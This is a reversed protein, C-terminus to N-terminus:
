KITLAVFAIYIVILIAGEIRDISKKKFTFAFLFTLIASLLLAILDTSKIGSMVLPHITASGGLILFINSVNSGIVNGLALDTNKKYAAVICSALEPLSTGAAMITIAIIADSVGLRKALSSASDVFLEGGFILAALGGIIMITALWIPTKGTKSNNDPTDNNAGEGGSSYITYAMFVGFLSLLLIGNVRSIINTATGDLITSCGMTCLVFAALLAFPIDKKVNNATLAIPYFLATVGLIVLTNFINSGIVNGVAIDANGQIASLFSVVMEPTSTGIGVITMGIIFDSIGARKAVTSSGDVLYNAGALILALGAILLLIDIM